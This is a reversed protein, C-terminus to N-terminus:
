AALAQGHKGARASYACRSLPPVESGDGAGELSAGALPLPITVADLRRRRRAGSPSIMPLMGLPM